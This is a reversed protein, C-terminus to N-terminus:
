SLAIGLEKLIKLVSPRPNAFVWDSKLRFGPLVTSAIGAKTEPIQRYTASRTLVHAEMCSQLPDIIWYERVKARRYAAFKDRWDRKISDPSVVEMALDPPADVHNPKLIEVRSTSVFSVDTLRRQRPLRVMVESGYVTGLRHYEAFLQVVSRVLWCIGDHDLSVPATMIIEGDVWEARTKEGIWDVFEEETMRRGPHRTQFEPRAKPPHMLTM